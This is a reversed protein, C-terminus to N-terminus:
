VVRRISIIRNYTAASVKIGERKNSAHVLQNNGMYIGVHGSYVIIDGPQANQLSGVETGVRRQQSSSRPLSIGFHQFVSMVFGSCDAGNTLSTGGYRYPNGVFQLAFSSIQQGLSVQVAAGTTEEIAENMEETGDSEEVLSSATEQSAVAASFTVEGTEDQAAEAMLETADGEADSAGEETDTLGEEAAGEMQLQTDAAPSALAPLATMASVLLAATVSIMFKKIHM